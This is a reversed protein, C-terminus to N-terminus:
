KFSALYEDTLDDLPLFQRMLEIAEPIRVCGDVRFYKTYGEGKPVIGSSMMGVIAEISHYMTAGDIHTVIEQTRDILCHIYFTDDRLDTIEWAQFKIGADAHEMRAILTGVVGHGEIVQWDSRQYKSTYTGDGLSLLDKLAREFPVGFIPARIQRREKEYLKIRAANWLHPIELLTNAVSKCVPDLYVQSDEVFFKKNTIRIASTFTLGDEDREIKSM